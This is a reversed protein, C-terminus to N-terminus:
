GALSRVMAPVFSASEARHPRTWLSRPTPGVTRALYDDGDLMRRRWLGRLTIGLLQGPTGLGGTKERRTAEM